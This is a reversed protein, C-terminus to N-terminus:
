VNNKIWDFTLTLGTTIDTKPEWNLLAKARTIDAFTHDVDGIQMPLFEINEKVGSIKYMKEVLSLLSVPNSNGLNLINFGSLSISKEIGAVIDDIYTYDRSTSGDGYLQIKENKLIKTFFKRIALDPRQRPGYCTFFRLCTIDVGFHTNYLNCLYEGFLKTQGYISIPQAVQDESFPVTNNGYISSSSAFILKCNFAKCLELINTTGVVNASMYLSPKEFSPRVGPYAALHIITDIKNNLCIGFLTNYDTVIDLPWISINNRLNLDTLNKEKLEPSYFSNFNDVGFVSHGSDVLKRALTSGIFGAVGTILINM